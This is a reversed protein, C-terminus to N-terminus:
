NENAGFITEYFEEQCTEERHSQGPFSSIAEVIPKPVYKSIDKGYRYLDMVMSSSVHSLSGARIYITKVGLTENIKALNEEYEYDMGNRIGRILYDAKEQTSLDAILGEFKRVYVKNELNLDIITQKIAALMLESDTRRKKDLNNAVAIVVKDFINIAEKLVNLHGITFPDFSGAYVAKTMSLEEMLKIPWNCFNSSVNTQRFDIIPM